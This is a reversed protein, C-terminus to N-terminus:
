KVHVHSSDGGTTSHVINRYDFLLSNLSLNVNYNDRLAQNLKRKILIVSNEDQGNIQPRDPPSFSHKIGNLQFFHNFEQYM